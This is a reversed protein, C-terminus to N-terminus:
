CATLTMSLQATYDVIAVDCNHPLWSRQRVQLAVIQQDSAALNHSTASRMESIDGRIRDAEGAVLAVANEMAEKNAAFQKELKRVQLMYVRM